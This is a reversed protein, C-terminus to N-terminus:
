FLEIDSALVARQVSTRYTSEEAALADNRGATLKKVLVRGSEPLYHVRRPYIDGLDEGCITLNEDQAYRRVFDANRAGIDTTEMGAIVRGGGILKVELNERRGGLKLIDNILREMAAGGYRTEASTASSWASKGRAQDHPLMFHNMGGIGTRRDRICASVCSGLVTWVHEGLATAYFDGPLLKAVYAGHKPDWERSIHAFHAMTQPKEPLPSSGTQRSMM